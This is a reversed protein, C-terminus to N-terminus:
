TSKIPHGPESSDEECEGAREEETHSGEPPEVLVRCDHGHLVVVLLPVSGKGGDGDAWCGLVVM